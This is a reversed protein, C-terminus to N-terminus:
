KEWLGKTARRKKWRPVEEETKVINDKNLAEVHDMM